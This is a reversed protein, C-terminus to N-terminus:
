PISRQLHFGFGKQRKHLMRQMKFTSCTSAQLTGQAFVEPTHRAPQQYSPASSFWHRPRNMSCFAAVGGTCLRHSCCFVPLSRLNVLHM